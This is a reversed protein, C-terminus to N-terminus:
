RKSVPQTPTTSRCSCMRATTRRSTQAPVSGATSCLKKGGNLSEPGTIDTNDARVLLSQGVTLYPGAFSIKQKRADNITYAAVIYDVQGNQLLNERQATPAEQWKIGSEQVGLKGAVYKAVDVDFGSFSGDPNKQSIGPRDFVIGITLQGAEARAEVGQAESGAASSCGTAAGAVILALAPLAILSKLKM